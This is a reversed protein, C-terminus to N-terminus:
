AAATVRYVSIVLYSLTSHVTVLLISVAIMEVFCQYAVICSLFAIHESYLISYLHMSSFSDVYHLTLYDLATM